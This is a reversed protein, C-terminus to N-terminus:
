VNKCYGPLTESWPMLCDLQEDSPDEGLKPLETLLYSLYGFVNLDNHNASEIISYCRASADAGKDTDSFLWNKRGIVFPKVAREARNNTLELEGSLLVNNLQKKQNVSYTVAKALNSGSAAYISEVFNWYEDLVPKLIEQRKEYRQKSTLEVLGEDAAFIKGILELAKGARTDETKIGKPLCDTFKYGDTQLYGSYDGIMDTVVQGARTAHHYYLAMKHASDKGSCFVWMRSESNTPTGDRKLVRLPTEDAHIVSEKLLLDHMRQWLKDFWRSSKIVWNALTNSGIEAGLEKLYKSQRTLPMGLHYKQQMVYAVTAPTAMSGKMVPVPTDAKFINTLEDDSCHECKYVKRYIDVVYIQAPIINLESRVFEEGICTLEGGCIECEKKDLDCVQKIHTLNETLEAKTRKKRRKHAAIFTEKDPEPASEDACVEAEDFLSMQADNFYKSKESSKGFMKKRSNVLMETLNSIQLEQKEVKTKLESNENQLESNENQLKSNESQLAKIYAAFDPSINEPIKMRASGEFCIESVSIIGYIHRFTWHKYPKKPNKEHLKLRQIM